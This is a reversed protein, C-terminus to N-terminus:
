SLENLSLGLGELSSVIGDSIDIARVRQMKVFSVFEERVDGQEDVFRLCIALHEVADSSVEDSM